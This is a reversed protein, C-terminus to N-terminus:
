IKMSAKAVPKTLRVGLSSFTPWSLFLKPLKVIMLIVKFPDPLISVRAIEYWLSKIPIKMVVYRGVNSRLISLWHM